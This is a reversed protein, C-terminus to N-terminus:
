ALVVSMDYRAFPDEITGAAHANLTGAFLQKGEADEIALCYEKWQAGNHERYGGDKVSVVLELGAEFTALVSRMTAFVNSVSAWDDDKYLHSTMSTIAKYIRNKIRTKSITQAM